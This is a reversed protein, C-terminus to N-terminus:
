NKLKRVFGLLVVAGLGMLSLSAPEPVVNFGLNAIPYIANSGSQNGPPETDSYRGARSFEYGSQLNEYQGDWTVQGADYTILDGWTDVGDAYADIVYWGNYSIQTQPIQVWRYGDYLPAATGAPVTASVVLNNNGDWLSVTHSNVLGDGGNDYYGLYNIQPWYDYSTLFVGGIYGVYGNQTGASLDVNPTFLVSGNTTQAFAAPSLAFCLVAAGIIPLSKRKM